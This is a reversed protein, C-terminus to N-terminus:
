RAPSTCLRHWGKRKNRKEDNTYIKFQQIPQSDCKQKQDAQGEWGGYLCGPWTWPRVQLQNLSERTIQIKEQLWVKKWQSHHKPKGGMPCEVRRRPSPSPDAMYIKENPNDRDSHGDPQIFKADDEVPISTAVQGGNTMRGEGQPQFLYPGHKDAKSPKKVWKWSQKMM